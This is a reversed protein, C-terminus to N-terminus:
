AVRRERQSEIKRSSRCANCQRPQRGLPTKKIEVSCHRCTPPKYEGRMKAEIHHRRRIATNYSVGLQDAIMADTYELFYFSKLIKREVYNLMDFAAHCKDGRLWTNGLEDDGILQHIEDYEYSLQSQVQISRHTASDNYGDQGLGVNLDLSIIKDSALNVLPDKILKQVCRTLAYPFSKLVYPILYNQNDRSRYRRLTALFTEIVEQRIDDEEIPKLQTAVSVLASEGALYAAPLPSRTKLARALGSNKIFNSLFIRHSYTLRKVAQGRLLLVFGELFDSFTGILYEAATSDGAQYKHVAIFQERYQDLMAEDTSLPEGLSSSDQM